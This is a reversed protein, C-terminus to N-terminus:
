SMIKSAGKMSLSAPWISMKNKWHKQKYDQNRNNDPQMNNRASESELGPTGLRPYM